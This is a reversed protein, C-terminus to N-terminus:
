AFVASRGPIAVWTTLWVGQLAFYEYTVRVYDRSFRSEEVVACRYGTRGELAARAVCMEVTLRDGLAEIAARDLIGKSPRAYRLWVELGADVQYLEIRGGQYRVAVVDKGRYRFECRTISGSKTLKRPRPQNTM